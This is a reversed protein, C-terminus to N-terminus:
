QMNKVILDFWQQAANSWTYQELIVTSSNVQNNLLVNLNVTNDDPDFYYASNRFIEPLCSENSICIKAGCSLAELPTIGFGEYKAPHIFAKCNEMLAKNEADSVYGLFYVNPPINIEFDAENGVWSKGAIAYIDNPNARANELVWVFNKHPALSSLSYYYCGRKLAEYREFIFTDSEIYKMHEWGNYIVSVRNPSIKLQNCIERKSTESVTVIKKAFLKSSIFNIGCRIRFSLPDYKKSIWPRIDHICIISGKQICFNGALSVYLANHKKLHVKLARQNLKAGTSKICVVKINKLHSINIEQDQPCLVEVNMLKPDIFEDLRKIIETVYREIGTIKGCLAAGNICITKM